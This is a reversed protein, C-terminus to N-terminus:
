LYKIFVLKNGHENYAVEDVMNRALLIGFGGARLGREDRVAFHQLPDDPSAAAAHEMEFFNFGEGPDKILYIIARKLRVYSVEVRMTPDLKGGHEIANNLLERFAYNIAERIEPSIDTELETLVRQLPTVANLDCPVLLEVWDRSASVVEVKAVPCSSLTSSVAESLETATFPKTLIDCIHERLAGLVAEPTNPATMMICRLDPHNLRLNKLFEVGDLGPMEFDTIVLDVAERPLTALGQHGDPAHLLDHGDRALSDQILEHLSLDDDVILVRSM